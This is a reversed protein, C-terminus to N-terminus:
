LHPEAEVRTVEGRAALDRMTRGFRPLRDIELALLCITQDGTASTLLTIPDFALLHEELGPAGAVRFVPAAVPFGAEARRSRDDEHFRAPNGRVIAQIAPDRPRTAQVIARGSPQAWAVAEMWVSVARARSNLGPRREALDADVIAVLDLGAPGLDRVVEPGGILVEGDRPMRPREIRRVKSRAVAAAWEEIREAGGRRIGFSAGGCSACRGEAECVVCRVVRDEIRLLGGCASCTAAAGCTRCVQAVGYGRLPSYIFGRGARRLAQVLRPARGEPGPAVIEVAPWRRSTTAVEPFGMSAAESSPCLASLVATAGEVRTRQLAVDRVHSYPARDERHAPHSERSVHILGLDRVPAYVGPRTGVIVDGRGDAVELWTRYRARRDGGLFAVARDGFAGLVAAATAPVPRAEPVLVIARRGAALCAAVTEVALAAEDEPAPRLVFGAARREGIAELVASGNRYADALIAPTAPGLDEATALALDPAHPRTPDAARLVEGEGVPEGEESVVRPPTLRKLVAALPVVYRESVWRALTLMPEDFFRVVSVRKRVPLMRAPVDDTTGLV